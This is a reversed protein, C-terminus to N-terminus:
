EEKESDKKIDGKFKRYASVAKIIGVREMGKSEEMGFEIYNCMLQSRTLGVKEAIRDIEKVISPKLMITYQQKAEKVPPRGMINGGINIINYLMTSM